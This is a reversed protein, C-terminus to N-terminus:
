IKFKGALASNIVSSYSHNSQDQQILKAQRMRVKKDLEDSIMITVRRSPKGIPSNKVM